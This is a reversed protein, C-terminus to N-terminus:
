YKILKISVHNGDPKLFYVGPKAVEGNALRGNWKNRAKAIFRGSVDYISASTCGEIYLFESFPNPYVQVDRFVKRKALFEREIISNDPALRLLWADTLGAGISATKGGVIYGGDSTQQISYGIDYEVGGYIRTWITDGNGDTKLIWVDRSGPGISQNEGVVIYGGDNTQQVQWANDFDTGGYTKTWLSDGLSDTKILYVDWHGAGYSETLGAIIFGGDDTQQVCYGKDYAAGGFFKVWMENGLSDTRILYVDWENLTRGGACIYGGDNLQEVSHIYGGGYVQTWLTDGNADTKVLLAPFYGFSGTDGGIIYGGDSTQRVCYGCDNYQWGYARIWLTDGMSDTKVAIIDVGGAGFSDTYGVIIYGGDSTQQVCMGVENGTRGYVKTWLTDGVDNTKIILVNCWIGPGFSRTEGAMIYGGDTTQIVSECADELTGGYTKTWLTDPGLAFSESFKFLIIIGSLFIAYIAKM